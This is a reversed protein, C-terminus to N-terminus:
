QAFERRIALSLRDVLDALENVQAADVTGSKEVNAHIAILRSLAALPPSIELAEGSLRSLIYSSRSMQAAAARTEIKNLLQRPVRITVPSSHPAPRTM